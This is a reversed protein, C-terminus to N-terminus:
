SSCELDNTLIPTVHSESTLDVVSDTEREIPFVYQVNSVACDDFMTDMAVNKYEKVNNTKYIESVVCKISTTMSDFSSGIIITKVITDFDFSLLNNSHLNYLGCLIIFTHYLLKKNNNYLCYTTFVAFVMVAIEVIYDSFYSLLSDMYLTCQMEQSEQLM